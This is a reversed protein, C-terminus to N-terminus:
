ESEEVDIVVEPAKKKAKAVTQNWGISSYFELMDKSVRIENGKDNFVSFMKM